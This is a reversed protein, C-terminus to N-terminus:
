EGAAIEAARFDIVKSPNNGCAGRCGSRSLATSSRKTCLSLAPYLFRPEAPMRTHAGHESGDRCDMQKRQQNQQTFTMWFLASERILNASEQKMLWNM